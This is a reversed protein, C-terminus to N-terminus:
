AAVGRAAAAAARSGIEMVKAEFAPVNIQSRGAVEVVAQAKILEDRHQRFFWRLSPLSPFIHPNAQQYAEFPWLHELRPAASPPKPVARRRPPAPQQSTAPKM